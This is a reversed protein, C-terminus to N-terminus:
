QPKALLGLLTRKEPTDKAHDLVSQLWQRAYPDSGSAIKQLGPLAYVLLKENSPGIGDLEEFDETPMMTRLGLGVYANRATFKKETKPRDYVGLYTASFDLGRGVFHVNLIVDITELGSVHHITCSAHFNRGVGTGFRDESGYLDFSFIPEFDQQTLDFWDEIDQVWGAGTQSIESTIELFPKGGLRMFRHHGPSGNTLAIQQGAFQWGGNSKRMYRLYVDNPIPSDGRVILIAQDPNLVNVVEASCSGGGGGCPPPVLGIERIRLALGLAGWDITRHSEVYRALTMPSKAAIAIEAEQATQAFAVSSLITVAAFRSMGAM